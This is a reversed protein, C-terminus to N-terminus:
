QGGDGPPGFGGPPGFDPPPPMKIAKDLGARLADETLTAGGGSWLAFWAAFRANTETRTLTGDASQDLATFLGPGVIRGLGGGPGFGIFESLKKGQSEGSLQARLSSSRAPMFVKIPLIPAFAFPGSAPVPKGAVSLEFRKLAEASEAAIAPRLAPALADIQASLHAPTFLKKNFELLRARYLKKFEPLAFIRELFKNEGQWPKNISLENREQQTGRVGFQGFSQDFDWPIFNFKNNKPNLYLYINQGPGLIGDLESLSVLVAMYRSFTELDIFRGIQANFETDTGLTVLKCLSILRKKQLETPKNKPDYRQNYRKWDEGRYGFMEPTSPKFLAGADSGFREKLFRDGVEEVTEYLGVYQNEFKGPVTLSVRAYGTRPSPVGADRFLRHALADNMWSPDAVSNHLNLTTMGALSQTKGFKNLDLKLPRKVSGMSSLFTGNGKYRVAIEPFIQGDLDLNAPVYAFDMGLMGAVGNRKGEQGLLSMPPPKLTASVAKELTENDLAGKKTSDWATFWREGLATFEAKSLEGDFDKDGDKLFIPALLPGAGFGGPPGFGFGGGGKPEMAAWQEATFRLHIEHIKTLAFFETPSKPPAALLPVVLLSLM